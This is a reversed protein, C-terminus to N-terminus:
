DKLASHYNYTGVRRVNLLQANQGSQTHKLKTRNESYVAIVEKFLTLWNIETITFHPTKKATRISNTIINLPSKPKV